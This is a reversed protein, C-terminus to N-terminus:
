YETAEIKIIRQETFDGEETELVDSDPKKDVITTQIEQRTQFLRRKAAEYDMKVYQSDEFKKHERRVDIPKQAQPDEGESDGDQNKIYKTVIEQKKVIRLPRESDDLTSIYIEERERKLRSKEDEGFMPDWM